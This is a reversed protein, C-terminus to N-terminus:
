VLHSGDMFLLNLELKKASQMLPLLVNDYFKRQAEPDAKAPFSAVKLRKINLRAILRATSAISLVINFKELIMNRIDRLCTFSGATITAKIDDSVSKAKAPRGSGPKM